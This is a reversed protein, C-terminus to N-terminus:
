KGVRNKEGDRRQSSVYQSFGNKAKRISKGEQRGGPLKQQVQGRGPATAADEKEQGRGKRSKKRKLTGGVGRGLLFPRSVVYRREWLVCVEDGTHHLEAPLSAHSWTM